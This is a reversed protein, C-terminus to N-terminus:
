INRLRHRCLKRALNYFSIQILPSKIEIDTGMVVNNVQHWSTGANHSRYVGETTNAFITNPNLPNIKVAWVGRQSNYSWDLSKFWTQGGDTTKLIGIGYTGRSNRHAAGHGAGAYNYVEGTGLYITNSDNQAFTISSIGLLFVQQFRIGPMLVLEQVTAEGFDVAQQVLMFQIQIKRISPSHTQEEEQRTHPGIAQWHTIAKLKSLQM